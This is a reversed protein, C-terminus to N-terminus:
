DLRRAMGMATEIPLQVRLMLADVPQAGGRMYYARRRGHATFGCDRYLALAALNDEAVELFMTTAGRKVAEAAAEILLARALGSPARPRLGSASSKRNM